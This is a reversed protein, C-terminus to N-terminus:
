RLDVLFQHRQLDREARPVATLPRDMSMLNIGRLRSSASGFLRETLAHVRALRKDDFQGVM